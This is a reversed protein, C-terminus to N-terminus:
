SAILYAIWAACDLCSKGTDDRRFSGNGSGNREDETQEFWAEVRRFGAEKLLERLEPLNWFRWQYTFARRIESGDRFRFHIHCTYDGSGPFYEAQDWVYTFGGAVRHADELEDTADPGGYVDLAFMGGRALDARVSRFYELLEQRKRLVWYSFNQAVRIDPARDSRARVDKRHLTVREAKAGLPALNRAKGWALPEPDLDFGEATCGARKVWTACLLATGCFDERLHRPPKAHNRRYVRRLFALDQEPSQVAMQYLEHRDATAATFRARIKRKRPRIEPVM